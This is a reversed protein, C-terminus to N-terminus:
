RVVDVSDSASNRTRLQQIPAVCPGAEAAQAAEAASPQAHSRPSHIGLKAGGGQQDSGRSPRDARRMANRLDRKVQALEGGDCARPPAIDDRSAPVAGDPLLEGSDSPM